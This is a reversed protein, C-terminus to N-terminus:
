RELKDAIREMRGVSIDLRISSDHLKEAADCIKDTSGNFPSAIPKKAEQHRKVLIEVVKILAMIIGVMGATIAQDIM